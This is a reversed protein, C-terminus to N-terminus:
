QAKDSFLTKETRRKYRAADVPVKCKKSPRAPREKPDKDIPNHYRIIMGEYNRLIVEDDSASLLYFPQLPVKGGGGPADVVFTPVCLGGTFGRMQEIIEIGKWISTRFHEAGKVPDCQYLYYPRVMIRQLAHCLAKMTEVSDNIGKLLVSQNSVPIGARLIKDCAEQAEPTIERPHNFQTNIWLPRHRSLMSALEDTIRMPLVVPIRTGIRIVELHPITRLEGLFWDLTEINMTLPDGGSIIVERVEPVGRVYNVMALLDKKSRITEGDQWIRKRTCHRCYMACSNTVLMLVRDPYRHVLGAVQTDDEEELPDKDGVNVYDIEKFDPICQQRIPDRPDTWDILSLYYPTISYHYKDILQKYKAIQQPKLDLLASLAYVSRLRNSLQWYWDNWDDATVSPWLSRIISNSPELTEHVDYDFLQASQLSPPEEEQSLTTNKM